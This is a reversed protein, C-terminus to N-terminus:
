TPSQHLSVLIITFNVLKQVVLYYEPITGWPLQRDEKAAM